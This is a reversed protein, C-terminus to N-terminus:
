GTPTVNVAVMTSYKNRLDGILQAMGDSLMTRARWGLLGCARTPDGVFHSVDFNRPPAEEIRVPRAAMAAALQALERLTTGHGSVFHIPPMHEGAATAEILRFIGDAVDRVATFDFTSTGGEVNMAGGNVAVGAFAMAVRDPYDFRCGYVNSLRCTNAVLGAKRALGVLYEGSAKSRGYVNIPALQADENVPLNDKAGYVERSSAFVLWPPTQRELCLRLLGLLAMVNTSNCLSPDHQAWVVRSVAALHLVGTVGNLATALSAADRVDEAKDRRLDFRRVNLAAAELRRTVYRGVLGESGTVLIM